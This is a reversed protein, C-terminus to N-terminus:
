VLYASSPSTTSVAQMVFSSARGAGRSGPLLGGSSAVCVFDVKSLEKNM